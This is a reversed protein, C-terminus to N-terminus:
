IILFYINIIIHFILIHGQYTIYYIQQESVSAMYNDSLYKYFLIM